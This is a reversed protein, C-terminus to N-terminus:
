IICQLIQMIQFLLLLEECNPTVLHVAPPIIFQTITGPLMSLIIYAYGDEIQLRVRGGLEFFLNLKLGLIYNDNLADVIGQMEKQVSSWIMQGNRYIICINGDVMDVKEKISFNLIYDQTWLRNQCKYYCYMRDLPDHKSIRVECKLYQKNLIEIDPLQGLINWMRESCQKVQENQMNKVGCM